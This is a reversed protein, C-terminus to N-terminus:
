EEPAAHERASHARYDPQGLRSASSCPTSPTPSCISCCGAWTRRCWQWPGLHPDFDTTLTANFDKDKARLGHYALRLYEDALANLDTPQREGTSARSHELM